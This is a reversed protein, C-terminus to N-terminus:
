SSMEKKEQIIEKNREKRIHSIFRPNGETGIIEQDIDAIANNINRNILNLVREVYQKSEPSDAYWVNSQGIGGKIARPILTDRNNVPLLFADKWAAKILFLEIGHNNYRISKKNSKQEHRFVTAHNYWGVVVTGGTKPSALWVVIVDDIKEDNKKAGIREIKIQGHSRVYGYVFENDNTFNCVEYGVADNNYSGGRQIEDNDNGNYREMWGINCFLIRM